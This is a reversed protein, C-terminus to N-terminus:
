RHGRIPSLDRHTARRHAHPGPLRSAPRPDRAAVRAASSALRRRDSGTGASCPRGVATCRGPPPPAAVACQGAPCGAAVSSVAAASTSSAARARRHDDARGADDAAVATCADRDARRGPGPEPCRRATDPDVADPCTRAGRAGRRGRGGRGDAVRRSWRPGCGAAVCLVLVAVVGTLGRRGNNSTRLEGGLSGSGGVARVATRTERVAVRVAARGVGARGPPLPRSSLAHLQAILRTSPRRLPTTRGSPRACRPLAPRQGGSRGREARVDRGGAGRPQGADGARLAATSGPPQGIRTRRPGCGSRAGVGSLSSTSSSTSSSTRGTSWSSRRVRHTTRWRSGPLRRRCRRAAGSAARRPPGSRDGRAAVRPRRRRSAAASPTSGSLDIM